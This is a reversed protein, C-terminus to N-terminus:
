GDLGSQVYAEVRPSSARRNPISVLGRRDATWRQRSRACCARFDYHHGRFPHRSVRVMVGRPDSATARTARQDARSSSRRWGPADSDERVPMRKAIPGPRELPHGRVEDLRHSRAGRRADGREPGSVPEKEGEDDDDRIEKGETHRRDRGGMSRLNARSSLGPPRAIPRRVQDARTLEDTGCCEAVRLPRKVLNECALVIDAISPAIFSASCDREVPSPKQLHAGPAMKTDM